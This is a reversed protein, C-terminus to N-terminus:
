NTKCEAGSGGDTLLDNCNTPTPLVADDPSAPVCPERADPCCVSLLGAWLDATATSGVDLLKGCSPCPWEVNSKYWRRGVM